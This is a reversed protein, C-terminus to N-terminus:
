YYRSNHWQRKYSMARRIERRLSFISLYVLFNARYLVCTCAKAEDQLQLLRRSQSKSHQQVKQFQVAAKELEFVREQLTQKEKVKIKLEANEIMLAQYDREFSRARKEAKELQCDLKSDSEDSPGKELQQTTSQSEDTMTM